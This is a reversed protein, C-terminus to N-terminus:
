IGPAPLWGRSIQLTYCSELNRGLVIKWKVNRRREAIICLSFKVLIVTAMIQSDDRRNTCNQTTSIKPATTIQRNTLKFIFGHHVPIGVRIMAIISPVNMMHQYKYSEWVELLIFIGLRRRIRNKKMIVSPLKIRKIKRYEM